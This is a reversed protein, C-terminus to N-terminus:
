PRWRAHPMRARGARGATRRGDVGEALARLRDLGGLYRQEAMAVDLAAVSARDIEAGEFRFPLAALAAAGDARPAHFERGRM